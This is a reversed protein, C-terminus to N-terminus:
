KLMHLMNSAGSVAAYTKSVGTLYYNVCGGIMICLGMVCLIISVLSGHTQGISINSPNNPDYSISVTTGNQYLTNSLANGTYSIGNVFHTLTVDCRITTGTQNCSCNTVIGNSNVYNSPHTFMYIGCAMLAIGIICACIMQLIATTKGITAMGDYIDNGVNQTSMNIRINKYYQM